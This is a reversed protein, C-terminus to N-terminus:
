PCANAVHEEFTRAFVHLGSGDCKARFYYYDTSEPYAAALISALDPNSIPAPPLGQIRYTNYPSDIALDVSNLPSKWWGGWAPDFGLSYQVTPDTELKWGAALRNYFVSAIIAKESDDFTERQIISALIIGEHFTLGHSEIQQRIEPGVQSQFRLVFTLALEQASIDRRILYEGPFMFGELNAGGPLYDGLGIQSPDRVVRMFEDPTVTIGSTPLAEAIEEARWGPLISFPVSENYVNLIQEAIQIPTSSASLLHTGSKIQTDYGKYILYTRFAGADSILGANELRNAIENITEGLNITFEQQPTNSYRTKTLSDRALLVQSSYQIKQVVTLAQSPPGFVSQALIPIGILVVVAAGALLIVVLTLGLCSSSRRNRQGTMEGIERM